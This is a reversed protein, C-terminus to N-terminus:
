FITKNNYQTCCVLNRSRLIEMEAPFQNLVDILNRKTLMIFQCCTRTEVTTTYPFSFYLNAEGIISGARIIASANAPNLKSMVQCEGQLIYYMRGSYRGTRCLVMNSNYLAVTATKAIARLFAPDLNHFLHSKDFMELCIDLLLEEHFTQPFKRM